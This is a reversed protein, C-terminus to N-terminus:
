YGPVGLRKRIGMLEPHVNSGEEELKVGDVWLTTHLVVGDSHTPAGPSTIGLGIDLLGFVWVDEGPHHM